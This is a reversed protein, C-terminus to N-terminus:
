VLANLKYIVKANRGSVNVVSFRTQLFYLPHHSHHRMPKIYDQKNVVATASKGVRMIALKLGQSGPKATGDHAAHDKTWTAVVPWPGSLPPLPANGLCAPLHHPAPM